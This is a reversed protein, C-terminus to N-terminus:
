LRDLGGCVQLMRNQPFLVASQDMRMPDLQQLVEAVSPEKMLSPGLSKVIQYHNAAASGWLVPRHFFQLAFNVEAENEIRTWTFAIFFNKLQENARQWSFIMVDNGALTREVDNWRECKVSFNGLNFESQCLPRLERM